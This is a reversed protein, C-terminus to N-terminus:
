VFYSGSFDIRTSSGMISGGLTSGTAAAALTSFVINTTANDVRGSIFVVSSALNAFYGVAMTTVGSVTFPLGSITTASGTGITSIEIIGQITVQRGIKTYRGEQIAYTATGGVSPTWTGEEYDDLTNADTSAVATAPFTIGSKLQLVGGNANAPAVGVLLNGTSDISMANAFATGDNVQILLGGQTNGQTSNTKLGLIKVYETFVPGTDNSTGGMSIGGGRGGGGVGSNDIFRANPSGATSSHVDLRQTPSTTGVGLNGSADFTAAVICGNVTLDTTNPNIAFQLPPGIARDHWIASRVWDYGKFAIYAPGASASNNTVTIGIKGASSGQTELLSVPSSTGIGVNGGSTLALSNAPASGSFSYGTGSTGGSLTGTASLTGTVATNGDLRVAGSEVWMAYNNTGASPAGTIKLTSANTITAAGAVITPPYFIASGFNAHTGSGAKNLTGETSLLFAESGVSPTLSSTVALGYANSSATFAGTVLFQRNLNTAGGIAHPGTGSVTLNGTASLAGTIALSTDNLRMKEPYTGSGFTRWTFADANPCGFFLNAVGPQSFQIFSGTTTNQLNLLTGVSVSSQNNTLVAGDFTLATGTTLVKSGNLFAVANATGGSLTVAGTASLTGTVALGTSSAEAVTSGGPRIVVNGTSTDLYLSASTGGIAIYGSASQILANAGLTLNGGNTQAGSFGGTTFAGTNATTAGVTGNINISATGTLNTVTGSSPTGLAGGNVVFAGATGTNVGLATVVGTGTTTTSPAAGAGGGIVLASAALATSSALTGTATYALVGGSTGSTLGTGGSAVPLATSLSMTTFSGTSASAAGIPTGDIAGGNIDVFDFMQIVNTGDVYLHAKRGTPVTIGTGASTKVTISQGGTTNNQVIYQKQTTPVILERTATLSGFTSTVNLVLARAAQAVNSNTISITLNADSTYDPNGYGIVAQEMATGLNTNTITGWTGSNEGTAMVEIKLNSSYSSTM